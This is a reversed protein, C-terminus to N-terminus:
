HFSNILSNLILKIIEVIKWINAKAHQPVLIWDKHTLPINRRVLVGLFSALHVSPEGISQEKINFPVVSKTTTNELRLAHMQTPGRPVFKRKKPPEGVEDEEGEPKDTTGDDDNELENGVETEIDDDNDKEEDAPEEAAM